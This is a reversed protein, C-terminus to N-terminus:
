RTSRRRPSTSSSASRRPPRSGSGSGGPQGDHRRLRLDAQVRAERGADVGTGCHLRHVREGRRSPDDLRAVQPASGGEDPSYQYPGNKVYSSVYPNSPQLPVPGYTPWGFGKLLSKVYGRQDILWRCRRASTCSSSSRARPRARSTSRCTTSAGRLDVSRVHLGASERAGEGARGRVAAPLRLRHRGLSPREARGAATTFPQRSSSTSSRSSRGPTARTRCSRRTATPATRRVAEVPRRRGALAPEDAYPEAEEGRRDPLQLRGERRRDHHRLQRRRRERVEQGLRAAADADAPLAPERSGSRRTRRPELMCPSRDAPGQRDQGGQRQGAHRGAPLGAWNKKNCKLLNLLFTFDRARSRSETRGSQLSSTITVQTNGKTYVPANRWARPRTRRGAQREQRVHLAAPVDAAPVARHQGRLLPGRRHDPLHLRADGRGCRWRRRAARRAGAPAQEPSPPRSCRSRSPSRSCPSTGAGRHPFTM